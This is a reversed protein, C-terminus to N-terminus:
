LLLNTFHSSVVNPGKEAVSRAGCMGGQVDVRQLAWDSKKRSELKVYDGGRLYWQCGGPALSVDRASLHTPSLLFGCVWTKVTMLKYCFM